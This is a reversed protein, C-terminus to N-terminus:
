IRQYFYGHQQREFFEPENNEKDSEEDSVRAGDPTFDEDISEDEGDTLNGGAV